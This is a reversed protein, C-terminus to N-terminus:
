YGGWRFQGKPGLPSFPNHAVEWIHGDPDRFLGSYGGWFVKEAPKVITAGASEALALLPDVQDPAEVNHALLSSPRGLEAESMGLDQAIKEWPYLCLAMGHLDFAVIGPETSAKEWGLAQYFGAARDLDAVGLTILSVRQQM